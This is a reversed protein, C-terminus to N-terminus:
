FMMRQASDSSKVRRVAECLACYARAPQAALNALFGEGLKGPGAKWALREGGSGAASLRRLEKGLAAADGGYARADVYSGPPLHRAVDPAGWYVPIAGAILAHVPKESVYGDDASNEFAFAFRYGRMLCLKEAYRLVIGDASASRRLQRAAVTESLNTTALTARLAERGCHPPLAARKAGPVACKGVVDVPYHPALARLLALRHSTHDDCNSVFAVIADAVCDARRPPYLFTAPTAADHQYLGNTIMSVRVHPVGQKRAVSTCVRGVVAMCDGRRPARYGSTLNAAGWPYRFMDGVLLTVRVGSFSAPWYGGYARQFRRGIAILADSELCADSGESCTIVECRPCAQLGTPWEAALWSGAM